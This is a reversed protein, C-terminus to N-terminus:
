AVWGEVLDDERIRAKVARILNGETAALRMGTCVVTDAANLNVGIVCGRQSHKLLERLVNSADALPNDGEVIIVEPRLSKIEKWRNGKRPLLDEVKFIGERRLISLLGKAFLLNEYLILVHERKM